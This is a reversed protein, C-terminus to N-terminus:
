GGGGLVFTSFVLSRDSSGRVDNVSVDWVLLGDPPFVLEQEKFHKMSIYSIIPLDMRPVHTVNWPIYM